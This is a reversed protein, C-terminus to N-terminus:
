LGYRQRAPRPLCMVCDGWVPCVAGCLVSNSWSLPDRLLSCVSACNVEVGIWPEPHDAGVGVRGAKASAGVADTGCNASLRDGEVDVPGADDPVEGAPVEDDLGASLAGDDRCLRTTRLRPGLRARSCSRCMLGHVTSFNEQTSDMASNKTQSMTMPTSNPTRSPAPTMSLILSAYVVIWPPLALAGTVAPMTKPLAAIMPTTFMTRNM